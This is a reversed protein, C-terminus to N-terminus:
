IEKLKYPRTQTLGKAQMYKAHNYARVREKHRTYWDRHAKLVKQKDSKVKLARADLVDQVAIRLFSDDSEALAAELYDCINRVNLLREKVDWRTLM